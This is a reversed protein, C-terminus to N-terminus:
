LVDGKSYYTIPIYIMVSGVVLRNGNKSIQFIFNVSNLVM